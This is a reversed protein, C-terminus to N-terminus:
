GIINFFSLFFVCCDCYSTLFIVCVRLVEVRVVQQLLLPLNWSGDVWDRVARLEWQEVASAFGDREAGEFLVSYRSNELIGVINARRWGKREGCYGEVTEGIKFYRHLETPQAPRVDAATVYGRRLPLTPDDSDSSTDFEVDAKDGCFRIFTAPHWTVADNPRRVEIRDGKDFFKSSIKTHLHQM